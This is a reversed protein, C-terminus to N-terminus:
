SSEVKECLRALEIDLGHCIRRVCDISPNRKGAEIECLYKQTIEASDALREQSWKRGLRRRRIETGLEVLFARRTRKM